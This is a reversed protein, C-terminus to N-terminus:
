HHSQTPLETHSQLFRSFDQSFNKSTSVQIHSDSKQLVGGGWDSVGTTVRFWQDTYYQIVCEFNFKSTTAAM